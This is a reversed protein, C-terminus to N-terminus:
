IAEKGAMILQENPELRGVRKISLVEVPDGCCNCVTTKFQKLVEDFEGYYLVPSAYQMFKVSWTKM